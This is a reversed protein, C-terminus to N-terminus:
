VDVGGVQWWDDWWYMLYVRVCYLPAHRKIMLMFSLGASYIQLNCITCTAAVTPFDWFVTLGWKYESHTFYAVPAFWFAWACLEYLSKYCTKNHLTLTQSPAGIDDSVFCPCLTVWKVSTFWSSVHVEEGETWQWRQSVFGKQKWMSIGLALAIIITM